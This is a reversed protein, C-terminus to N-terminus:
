NIRQAIKERPDSLLLLLLNIVRAQVLLQFLEEGDSM